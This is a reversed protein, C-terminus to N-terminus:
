WKLCLTLKFLYNAKYIDMPITTAGISPFKSNINYVEDETLYYSDQIMGVVLHNQYVYSRYTLYALYSSPICLLFIIIIIPKKLTYSKFFKVKDSKLFFISIFIQTLILIVPRDHPFNFFSDILFILFPALLFMLIKDRKLLIKLKKIFLFIAIFYLSYRLFFGIVGLEAATQLFDNHVHYPVVYDTIFENDYILSQLKWSGAGTGFFPNELIHNVAQKYFRLRQDTSTSSINTSRDIANISSETFFFNNITVAILISIGFVLNTTWKVIKNKSYFSYVLFGILLCLILFNSLRSGMLLITFIAFPTIFISLKKLLGKFENIAYILFPIKLLLAIGTININGTFARLGMDRGGVVNYREYFITNIWIIEIALMSIIAIVLYKTDYDLQKLVSHIVIISTFFILFKNVYLIVEEKNFSYLISFSSWLAFCLFTVFSYKNLFFFDKKSLLLFCISIFNLISLYLFQTTMKDIAIFNPVYGVILYGILLVFFFLKSKM